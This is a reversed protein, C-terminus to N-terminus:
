VDAQGAEDGPAPVSSIVAFDDVSPASTPHHPQRQGQGARSLAETTNRDWPHLSPPPFIRCRWPVCLAIRNRTPGDRSDPVGVLRACGQNFERGPNLAGPGPVHILARRHYVGGDVAGGLLDRLVLRQRTYDEPLECAQVVGTPAPRLAVVM